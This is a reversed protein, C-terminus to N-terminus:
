CEKDNMAALEEISLLGEYIAKGVIVGDLKYQKLAQIDTIASIGGSAIISVQTFASRLNKFFEINAGELMGDRSIDTCIFEKAGRRILDLIFKMPELRTDELWGSIAVSGNKVDMGIVIRDTGFQQVWYEVLEPSRAAISGIVARSVGIDILQRIEETSRIGGGIEVKLGPIGCISAISKWNVVKKEKAGQLDVVHLFRFGAKAFQRAVEEPSESYVTKQGYDGQRLRVCKGEYIDIAPIILM